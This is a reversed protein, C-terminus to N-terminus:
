LVLQALPRASIHCTPDMTFVCSLVPKYGVHSGVAMMMVTFTNGCPSTPSPAYCRGSLTPLVNLSRCLLLRTFYWRLIMLLSSVPMPHSYHSIWCPETGLIFQVVGRTIDANSLWFANTCKDRAWLANIICMSLSRTGSGASLCLDSFSGLHCGYHLIAPHSPKSPLM